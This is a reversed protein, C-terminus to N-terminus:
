RGLFHQNDDEAIVDLALVLDPFKDLWPYSELALARDGGRPKRQSVFTTWEAIKAPTTNQRVYAAVDADSSAAAGAATFADVPIGFTELMMQTFGPIVYEGIRGGPLTARVKDISRPLFVIGDLEARPSRPPGTTLDLPTMGPM